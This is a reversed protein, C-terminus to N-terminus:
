KKFETNWAKIGTIALALSDQKDTVMKIVEVNKEKIGELLEILFNDMCWSMINRKEADDAYIFSEFTYPLEGNLISNVQAKVIDEKEYNQLWTSCQKAMSLEPATLFKKTIMM